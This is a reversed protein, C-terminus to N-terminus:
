PAPEDQREDKEPFEDGDFGEEESLPDGFNELMNLKFYLLSCSSVINFLAMTYWVGNNHGNDYAM